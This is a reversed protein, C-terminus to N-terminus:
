ANAGWDEPGTHARSTGFPEITSGAPPLIVSEFPLTTAIVLNGHEIVLTTQPVLPIAAIPCYRGKANTKTAAM